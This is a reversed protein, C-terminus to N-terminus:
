VEGRSRLLRFQILTVVIMILALLVAIASAYGFRFYTWATQYLYMLVTRLEHGPGGATMLLPQGFVQMHAIFQTVVVFLTTPTILPLTIEFFTQVSGAGDIKAAEYISEPINQLGALFVLMPFGFSWWVTTLSIAPIVTTASGLWQIRPGNFVDTIFYNLMGRQPDFVRLAIIGAVSVSLIVPTYFLVRLIDRGRFNQKLAVATLLSLVTNITATMIAFYGTNRLVKWFLPDKTLLAIYNNFGVPTQIKAMIRWDFMSIRLGSFIPYLLFLSFLLLHPLIFLYNPSEKRWRRRFQEVRGIKVFKESDDSYTVAM